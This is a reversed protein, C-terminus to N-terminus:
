ARDAASPQPALEFSRLCWDVFAQMDNHGKTVGLAAERDLFNSVFLILMAPVVPAVADPLNRGQLLPALAAEQMSRSTEFFAVVEARLAENQMALANFEINLRGNSSDSYLRWIAHLPEDSALAAELRKLSSEVRRRFAGLILEEMTEFYYYVTQHNFGAEEAVRRASLAAYGETRLIHEVADFMTDRSASNQPGM